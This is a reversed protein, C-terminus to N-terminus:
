FQKYYEGKKKTSLNMEEWYTKSNKDLAKDLFNKGAIKSFLFTSGAGLIYVISLLISNILTAITEGFLHQGEKVGKFFKKINEM